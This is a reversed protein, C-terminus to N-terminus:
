LLDPPPKEGLRGSRFGRTSFYEVLFLGSRTGVVQPSAGDTKGAARYEGRALIAWGEHSPFLLALDPPEALTTGDVMDGKLANRFSEQKYGALVRPETEPTLNDWGIVELADERRVLALLVGAELWQDAALFLVEGPATLNRMERTAVDVRVISRHDEQISFISGAPKEDAESWIVVPAPGSTGIAELTQTRANGQTDVEVLAIHPRGGSTGALAAWMGGARRQLPPDVLRPGELGHSVFAPDSLRKEESVTLYGLRDGDVWVIYREYHLAAIDNLHALRPSARPASPLELDLAALIAGPDNGSATQYLWRISDGREATWVAGLQERAASGGFWRFESSLLEAPVVEVEVANTSVAEEQTEGYRYSLEIRYNGVELPPAYNLLSLTSVWESGAPAHFRSGIESFLHVGHLAAHDAGSLNLAGGGNRLPTVRLTTRARNLEVTEMELAAAVKHAINLIIEEGAITQRKRASLRLELPPMM